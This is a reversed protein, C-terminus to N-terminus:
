SFFSYPLKAPPLHSLSQFQPTFKTYIFRFDMLDVYNGVRQRRVIAPHAPYWATSHRYLNTSRSYYYCPM